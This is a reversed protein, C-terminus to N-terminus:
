ILCEAIEEKTVSLLEYIREEDLSVPATFYQTLSDFLENKKDDSLENNNMEELAGIAKELLGPNRDAILKGNETFYVDMKKSVLASYKKIDLQKMKM